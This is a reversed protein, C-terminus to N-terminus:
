SDYIGGGPAVRTEEEPLSTPVVGLCVNECVIVIREGM